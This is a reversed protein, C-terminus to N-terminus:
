SLLQAIIRVAYWNRWVSKRLELLVPGVRTTLTGSPPSAPAIPDFDELGFDQGPGDEVVLRAAAEAVVWFTAEVSGLRALEPLM